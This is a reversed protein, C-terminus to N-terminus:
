FIFFKTTSSHVLVPISYPESEKASTFFYASFNDKKKKKQDLNKGKYRRPQTTREEAVDMTTQRSTRKDRCNLEHDEWM